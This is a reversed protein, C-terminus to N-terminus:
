LGAETRQSGHWFLLRRELRGFLVNVLLGVIGATVVYVWMRTYRGALQALFVGSGIGGAPGIGNLGSGGLILEAAVCANLAAISSIRLGTGIYPLATPLILHRFRQARSLRYSRAMDYAVPDVDRVGYITQFLMPWFAAFAVIYVKLELSVHILLLLLPLLAISPLPRLVDITVHTFRYAWKSMGLVVGTPVALAVALALALSWGTVTGWIAHWYFGTQAEDYLARAIQSPPPFSATPLVALDARSILEASAVVLAVAALQLSVTRSRGRLRRRARSRAGVRRAPAVSTLQDVVVRVRPEM